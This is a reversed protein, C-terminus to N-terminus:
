ATFEECRAILGFSGPGIHATLVAGIEHSGADHAPIGAASVAERVTQAAAEDLVHIYDVTMTRGAHQESFEKFRSVMEQVAKRTGRARALPELKGDVLTLIPKLSLLGGVFASARGIRGGKQLFDLTAVTFLILTSDRMSEMEAVVEDLSAGADRMAAARRALAGLGMSAARSDFVVVEVDVEPAALTASQYTGSLESSITLVLIVDHGTERLERYVSAFDEPSPQSTTPLEAGAEVGAVIDTPTVDIWDRLTEGKFSVYLPIRHVNFRELEEQSLDCTSDTIIALKM